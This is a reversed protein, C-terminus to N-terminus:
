LKSYLNKLQSYTLGFTRGIIEGDVQIANDLYEIVYKLVAKQTPIPKRMGDVTKNYYTTFNDLIRTALSYPYIGKANIAVAIEDLDYNNQEWDFSIVSSLLILAFTEWEEGLEEVEEEEQKTKEPLKWWRKEEEAPEEWDRRWDKKPTQGLQFSGGVPYHTTPKIVNIAKVLEIFEASVADPKEINCDFHLLKDSSSLKIPVGYELGTEDKSVYSTQVNPKIIYAIKAKFDMKNNVILSLYFNHNEANDSLEDMDTGSFFTGMNNHSHIHGIKCDELEPHAELFEVFKEGFSYETYAGTGKDLPLIDECTMEFTALDKVSGKTSYFLVGSWEVQSIETCLYQIQSMVKPSVILKPQLDTM